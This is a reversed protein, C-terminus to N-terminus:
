SCRSKNLASLLYVLRGDAEEDSKCKCYLYRNDETEGFVCGDEVYFMDIKDANLITRGGDLMVWM